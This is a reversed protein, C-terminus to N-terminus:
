PGAQCGHAGAADLEAPLVTLAWLVLLRLPHRGHVLFAQGVPQNAAIDPKGLVGDHLDCPAYVL